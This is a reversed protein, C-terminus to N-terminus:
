FNSMAYFLDQAWPMWESYAQTGPAGNIAFSNEEILLNGWIKWNNEDSLVPVNDSPFDIILSAAWEPLTAYTPIMM